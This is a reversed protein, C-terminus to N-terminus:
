FSLGFEVAVCNLGLQLTRSAYAKAERSVGGNKLEEASVVFDLAVVTLAEGFGAVRRVVSWGERGMEIEVAKQARKLVEGAELIYVTADGAKGGDVRIREPDISGVSQNMGEVAKRVLHAAKHQMDDLRGRAFLNEIPDIVRRTAREMDGNGYPNEVMVRKLSKEGALRTDTETKIKRSPQRTARARAARNEAEAWDTM